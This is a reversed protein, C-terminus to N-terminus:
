IEACESCVGHRITEGDEVTTFVFACWSTLYYESCIACCFEM